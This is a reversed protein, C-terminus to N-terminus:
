QNDAREDIEECWPEAVELSGREEGDAGCPEDEGYEEFEGHAKVKEVEREGADEFIEIDGFAREEGEAQGEDEEGREQGGAEAVELASCTGLGAAKRAVM